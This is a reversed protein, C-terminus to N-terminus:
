LIHGGGRFSVFADFLFVQLVIHVKIIGVLPLYVPQLSTELSVMLDLTIKRLYLPKTAFSWRLRFKFHFHLRLSM